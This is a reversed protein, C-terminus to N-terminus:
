RCGLDRFVHYQEWSWDGASWGRVIDWRGDGSIDLFAFVHGHIQFGKDWASFYGHGDNLYFPHGEGAWAEGM